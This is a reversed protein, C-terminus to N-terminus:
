KKIGFEELVSIIIRRALEEDSEEPEYITPEKLELTVTHETNKLSKIFAGNAAAVKKAKQLGELSKLGQEAFWNIADSYDVNYVDFVLAFNDFEKTPSFYEVTIRGYDTDLIKFNITTMNKRKFQFALDAVAPLKHM